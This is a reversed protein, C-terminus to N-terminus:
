EDDSEGGEEEEGEDGEDGEDQGEDVDGQEEDSSPVDDGGWKAWWERDRAVMEVEGAVEGFSIRDAQNTDATKKIAVTGRRHNSYTKFELTEPDKALGVSVFCEKM